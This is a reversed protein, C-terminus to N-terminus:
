QENRMEAQASMTFNGGLTSNSVVLRAVPQLVMFSFPYSVTVKSGPTTAVGGLSIQTATITITATTDNLGGLKMYDKVRTQAAGAPQGPLVAVRAGERAANTLVQLTEYARGFEFIGVAVLLILPLTVALELIAAGRASKIRTM